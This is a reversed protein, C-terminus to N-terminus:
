SVSWTRQPVENRSITMTMAIRTKERTGASVSAVRTALRITSRGTM